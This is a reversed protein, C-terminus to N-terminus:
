DLPHGSYLTNKFMETLLNGATGISLYTGFSGSQEVYLIGGHPVPGVYQGADVFLIKTRLLNYSAIACAKRTGNAIINRNPWALQRVSENLFDQPTDYVLETNSLDNSNRYVKFYSRVFFNPGHPSTPV